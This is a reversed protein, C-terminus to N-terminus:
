SLRVLFVPPSNQLQQCTKKCICLAKRIGFCCCGFIRPVMKREWDRMRGPPGFNGLIRINGNQIKYCSRVVVLARLHAFGWDFRWWWCVLVWSKVPRIGNRDGLWCHWTVSPFHPEFQLFHIHKPLLVLLYRTVHNTFNTCAASCPHNPGPHCDVECGSWRVTHLSVM